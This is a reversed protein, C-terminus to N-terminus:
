AGLRRLAEPLGGGLHRPSKWERGMHTIAGVVYALNSLHVIRSEHSGSGKLDCACTGM